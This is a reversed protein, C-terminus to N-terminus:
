NCGKGPTGLERGDEIHSPVIWNACDNTDFFVEVRPDNLNVLHSQKSLYYMWSSGQWKEEPGKSGYNIQSYDPPGLLKLIQEKKMCLSVKKLGAVIKTSREQSAVYPYQSINREFDKYTQMGDPIARPDPVTAAWCISALLLFILLFPTIRKM